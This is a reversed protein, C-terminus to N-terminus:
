YWEFTDITTQRDEASGYPTITKMEEDKRGDAGGQDQHKEPYDQVQRWIPVVLVLSIPFIVAVQSDLYQVDAYQEINSNFSM